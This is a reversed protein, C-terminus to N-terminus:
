RDAMLAKRYVRIARDRAFAHEVIPEPYNFEQVDQAWKKTYSGDPDFKKQQLSPNFIRFYPAADCGCGAAWQWGGNNSALDYDLLKEAFYAEGWRWDILLHKALFSATVM